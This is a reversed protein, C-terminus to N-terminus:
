FVSGTLAYPAVAEAQRVVDEFRDDDFVYVGLIPGFYETTFVKHEPDSCEVVTP